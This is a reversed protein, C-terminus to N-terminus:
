PRQRTVSTRVFQSLLNTKRAYDGRQANVFQRYLNNSTFSTGISYKGSTTGTPGVDFEHTEITCLQEQIHIAKGKGKVDELMGLSEGTKPDFIEEGLSFIVFIDGPSVGHKTGINLVVTHDDIVKAVLGDHRVKSETM